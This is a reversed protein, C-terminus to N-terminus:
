TQQLDVPSCEGDGLMFNESQAESQFGFVRGTRADRAGLLNRM